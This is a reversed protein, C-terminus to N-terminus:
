WIAGPEGVAPSLFIFNAWILCKEKFSLWRLIKRPHKQPFFTEFYEPIGLHVGHVKVSPSGPTSPQIINV